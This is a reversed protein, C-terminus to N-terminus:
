ETCLLLSHCCQSCCVAHESDLRSHRFDPMVLIHQKPMSEIICGKATLQSCFQQPGAPCSVQLMGQFSLTKIQDRLQEVEQEAAQARNEAEKLREM